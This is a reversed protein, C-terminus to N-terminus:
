RIRASRSLRRGSSTCAVSRWSMGSPRMPFASSTASRIANRAESRAEYMVPTIAWISPPRYRPIKQGSLRAAEAAQGSYERMVLVVTPIYQEVCPMAPMALNGRLGRCVPRLLGACGRSRVVLLREAGGREEGRLAPLGLETRDNAAAKAGADALRVMRLGRRRRSPAPPRRVPPRGRGHFNERRLLIPEGGTIVPSVVQRPRKM